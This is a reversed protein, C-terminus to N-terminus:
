EISVVSSSFHVDLENLPGRMANVRAKSTCSTV